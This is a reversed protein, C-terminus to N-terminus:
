IEQLQRHIPSFPGLTLGSVGVQEKTFVFYILGFGFDNTGAARYLFSAAVVGNVM